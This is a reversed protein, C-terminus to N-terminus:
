NFGFFLVLTLFWFVFLLWWGNKSFVARYYWFGLPFQRKGRQFAGTGGPFTFFPATVFFERRFHLVVHNFQMETGNAGSGGSRFVIFLL